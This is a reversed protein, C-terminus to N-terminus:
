RWWRGDPAWGENERKPPLGADPCAGQMANLSTLCPSEMDPDGAHASHAAAPM